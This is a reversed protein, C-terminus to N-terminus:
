SQPSLKVLYPDVREHGSCDRSGRGWDSAFVLLRGDASWTGRPEAWYGCLSSRHQAVRRVSGDMYQIVLEGEMPWRGAPPGIGM